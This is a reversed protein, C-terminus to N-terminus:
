GHQAEEIRSIWGWARAFNMIENEVILIPVSDENISKAFALVTEESDILDYEIHNKELREKLIKCRQCTPATYLKIKM